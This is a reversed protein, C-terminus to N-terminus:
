HMGLIFMELSYFKNLYNAFEEGEVRAETVGVRVPLVDGERLSLLPEPLGVDDVVPVEGGGVSGDRVSFNAPM